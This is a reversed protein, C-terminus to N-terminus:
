MPTYVGRRYALVSAVPELGYGLISVATYAAYASFEDLVFYVKHIYRKNERTSLTDLISLEHLIKTVSSSFDTYCNGGSLGQEYKGPTLHCHMVSDRLLGTARQMAEYTASSPRGAGRQYMITSLSDVGDGFTTQVRVRMSQLERLAHSFNIVRVVPDTGKHIPDAVVFEVNNKLMFITVAFCVNPLDKQRADPNHPLVFADYRGITDLQPLLVAATKELLNSGPASFVCPVLIPTLDLVRASRFDSMKMNAMGTSYVRGQVTYSRFPGTVTIASSKCTQYQLSMIIDRMPSRKSMEEELARRAEQLEQEAAYVRQQLSATMSEFKNKHLGPRGGEGM